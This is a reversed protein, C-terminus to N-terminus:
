SRSCIKNRHGKSLCLCPIFFRVIRSDRSMWTIIYSQFVGDCLNDRPLLFSSEKFRLLASMSWVSFIFHTCSPGEGTTRRANEKGETLNYVHIYWANPILTDLLLYIKWMIEELILDLINEHEETKWELRFSKGKEYSKRWKKQMLSQQEVLLPLRLSDSTQHLLFYYCGDGSENQDSTTSVNCPLM